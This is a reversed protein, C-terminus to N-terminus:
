GHAVALVGTMIIAAAALRRGLQEEAFPQAIPFQAPGAPVLQYYGPVSHRPYNFGFGTGYPGTHSIQEPARMEDPPQGMWCPTSALSPDKSRVRRSPNRKAGIGPMEHWAVIM